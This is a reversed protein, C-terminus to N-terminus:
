IINKKKHKRRKQLEKREYDTLIDRISTVQQRLNSENEIMQPQLLSMMRQFDEEGLNNVGENRRAQISEVVAGYLSNAQDMGFGDKSSSMESRVSSESLTPKTSRTPSQHNIRIRSTSGSAISSLKQLPIEGQKRTISETRSLEESQLCRAKGTIGPIFFSSEGDVSDDEEDAIKRAITHFYPTVSPATSQSDHTTTTIQSRVSARKHLAFPLEPSLIHQTSEVPNSRPLLLPRQKHKDVSKVHSTSPM